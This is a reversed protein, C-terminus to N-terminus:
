MHCGVCSAGVGAPDHHAHARLANAEAYKDHCRTCVGNGAPTALAVLKARSDEGHPDHCATCALERSCGGLLFDRGEGSHISSGGPDRARRGGEWTFPYRSFLVQHCRACTRNIWEARTIERAAGVRLFAARPEFSPRVALDHVHEATGGHCSECGIGVEALHQGKFYSRTARIAESPSKVPPAGLHKM